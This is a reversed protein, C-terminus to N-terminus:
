RLLLAWRSRSDAFFPFLPNAKKKGFAESFDTAALAASVGASTLKNGDVLVVSEMEAAVVIDAVSPQESSM